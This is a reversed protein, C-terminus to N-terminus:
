AKNSNGQNAREEAKSMGSFCANLAKERLKAPIQVADTADVQLSVGDLVSYALIPM